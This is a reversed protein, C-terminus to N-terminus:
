KEGARSETVQTLTWVINLTVWSKHDYGVGWGELVFGAKVLM